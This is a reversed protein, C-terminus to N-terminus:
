RAVGEVDVDDVDAPADGDGGLGEDGAAPRTREPRLGYPLGLHGYAATVEDLRALIRATAHLTAELAPPHEGTANAAKALQNLNVGIAALLRRVALLEAAAARRESATGADGAIGAETLFRPVSVGAEGARAAIVRQEDESLRVTHRHRRGGQHRRQRAPRRRGGFAGDHDQDERGEREGRV